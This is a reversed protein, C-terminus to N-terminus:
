ECWCSCWRRSGNNARISIPAVGWNMKTAPIFVQNDGCTITVQDGVYGLYANTGAGSFAVPKASRQTGDPLVMALSGESGSPFIITGDSLWLGYGLDARIENPPLDDTFQVNAFCGLPPQVTQVSGGVSAFGLRLAAAIAVVRM